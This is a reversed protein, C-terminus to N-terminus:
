RSSRRSTRIACSWLVQTRTDALTRADRFVKFYIDPRREILEDRHAEDIAIAFTGNADTTAAGLCNEVCHDCDWAEVRLDALPRFSTESIV